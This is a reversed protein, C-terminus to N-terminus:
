KIFEAILTKLQGPGNLFGAVGGDAIVHKIWNYQATERETGTFRWGEKKIEPTLTIAVVRGVHRQKIEMPFWGILDPSKIITNQRESENALGFRVFSGNTMMGAGSNNRWLQAGLKAAELRVQSQVYGESKGEIEERPVAAEARLLMRLERIAEPPFGWRTAWIDLIM